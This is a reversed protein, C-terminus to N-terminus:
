PNIIKLFSGHLSQSIICVYTTVAALTLFALGLMATFIDNSIGIKSKKTIKEAPSM